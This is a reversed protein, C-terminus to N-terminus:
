QAFARNTLFASDTLTNLFAILQGKEFNTLPIRNKVLPDTTAGNVVGDSYHSLVNLIDFFRGDHGYYSTKM